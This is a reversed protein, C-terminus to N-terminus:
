ELETGVIIVKPVVPDNPDAYAGISLGLLLVTALVLAVIKKKM